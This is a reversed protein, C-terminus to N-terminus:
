VGVITSGSIMLLDVESPEVSTVISPDSGTVPVVPVLDSAAVNVIESSMSAGESKVVVLGLSPCKPM